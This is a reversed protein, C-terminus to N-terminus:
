DRGKWGAKFGLLSATGIAVLYFPYVLSVPLYWRMLHTRGYHGCVSRLLVLDALIKLSWSLLAAILFGKDIFGAFLGILIALSTLYALTQALTLLPSVYEGAKGAWRLRQRWLAKWGNVPKTTVVSCAVTLCRVPTRAAHFKHLLLVDDGSPLHDVGTYGGVRYFAERTFALHAGNALTPKGAAASSATFLQFGALDLAQFASCVDTVPHIFVPGPVVEAGQGFVKVLERLVQPPWSCDADTTVIIEARTHSIGLRLAEKKFAVTAPPLDADALRLLTVGPGPDPADSSHDDILIIEYRDRPYDQARLGALLGALNRAEDRFPVVIAVTPFYDLPGSEHGQIARRWYVYNFAQLVAYALAISVPLM